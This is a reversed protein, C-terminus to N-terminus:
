YLNNIGFHFQSDTLTVLYCELFKHQKFFLVVTLFAKKWGSFHVHRPVFLCSGLTFIRYDVPYYTLLPYYMGGPPLIRTSNHIVRLQTNKVNSLSDISAVYLYNEHLTWPISKGKWQIEHLSFSYLYM